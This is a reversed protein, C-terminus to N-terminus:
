GWRDEHGCGMPTWIERFVKLREYAEKGYSHLPKRDKTADNMFIRNHRVEESDGDNFNANKVGAYKKQAYSEIESTINPAFTQTDSNDLFM